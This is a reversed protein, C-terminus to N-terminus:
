RGMEEILSIILQKQHKNKIKEFAITMRTLLIEDATKIDEADGEEFDKSDRLINENPSIQMKPLDVFFMGFDLNLIECIDYLRKASIRSKGSEYKQIQQFSINLKKAIDEQTMKCRKRHFRMHQGIFYDLGNVQKVKSSM